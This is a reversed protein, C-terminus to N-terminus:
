FNYNSSNNILWVMLKRYDGSSVLTKGDSEWYIKNVSFQHGTFNEYAITKPAGINNSDWIKITKDRSATAMLNQTKSFEIAYIAYNHAPISKVPELNLTWINLHADWGGSLVLDSNPHFKAVNCSKEHAIISNILLKKDLDILKINSDGCALLALNGKIDVSRLKEDSFKVLREIVLTDLNTFGLFGDSSASLLYGNYYKLDFIASNHLHILKIEKQLNLDVVHIKGGSTGIMLQNLVEYYFLSYITENSRILLKSKDQNNIDWLIVHKDVGGSFVYGDRLPIMAYIAAKHGTLEIKKTIELM